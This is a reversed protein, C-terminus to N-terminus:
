SVAGILEFGGKPSGGGGDWLLRLHAYPHRLLNPQALEALVHSGGEALHRIVDPRRETFFGAPPIDIDAHEQGVLVIRRHLETIWVPWLLVRLPDRDRHRPAREPFRERSKRNIKLQLLAAIRVLFKGRIARRQKTQARKFAGGGGWRLLLGMVSGTDATERGNHSSPPESMSAWARSM